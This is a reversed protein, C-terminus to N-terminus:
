CQQPLGSEAARSESSARDLPTRCLVARAYLPWGVSIACWTWGVFPSLCLLSTGFRLLLMGAATLGAGIMLVRLRAPEAGRFCLTWMTVSFPIALVLDYVYHYGLGLTALVTLVFFAFSAVRYVRSRWGLQWFLLLAWSTHLSPVCNRQWAPDGNTFLPVLSPDPYPPDGHFLYKPGIAPFFLYLTFGVAGTVMLVLFTDVPPAAATGPETPRPRLDLASAIAMAMALLNYVTTCTIALLPVALFLEFVLDHADFALARDARYLFGDLTTPYLARMATLSCGVVIRFLPQALALGAATLRALYMERSRRAHWALALLAAIALGGPVVFLVWPRAEVCAIVCQIAVAALILRPRGVSIAAVVLSAELSVALAADGTALSQLFDEHPAPALGYASLVELGVLIATM